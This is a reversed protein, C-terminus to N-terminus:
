KLHNGGGEVVVVELGVLWVGVDSAVELRATDGEMTGKPWERVGGAEKRSKRVAAVTEEDSLQKEM